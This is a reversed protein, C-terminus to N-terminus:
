EMNGSHPDVGLKWQLPGYKWQLPIKQGTVNKGCHYKQLLSKKVVTVNQCSHSKHLQPMKAVSDMHSIGIIEQCDSLIPKIDSLITM